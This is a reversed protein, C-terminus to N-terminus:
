PLLHNYNSNVKGREQRKFNYSSEKHSRVRTVRWNNQCFFTNRAKNQGLPNRHGHQTNRLLPLSPDGEGKTVMKADRKPPNKNEEMNALFRSFTSTWECCLQEGRWHENFQSSRKLLHSWAGHDNWTVFNNHPTIITNLLCIICHLPRDKIQSSYQM